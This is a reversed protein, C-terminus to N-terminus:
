DASRTASRTSARKRCRNRARTASSTARGCKSACRTSCDWLGASARSAAEDIQNETSPGNRHFGPVGAEERPLGRGAGNRGRRPVKRHEFAVADAGLRDARLRAVGPRGSLRGPRHCRLARRDPRAGHQRVRRADPPQLLRSRAGGHAGSRRGEDAGVAMGRDGASEEATPRKKQKKPPMEGSSIREMVELWQPTDEFGVKASLSDIRFDSKTSDAGHCSLCHTKFYALVKPDLVDAADSHTSYIAGMAMLLPLLFRRFTFFNLVTKM